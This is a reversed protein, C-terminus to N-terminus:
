RRGKRKRAPSKPRPPTGPPTFRGGGSRPAHGLLSQREVQSRANFQEVFAQVGQEDDPSVGAAKAQLWFRKGWSYRALDALNARLRPELRADLNAGRRDGRLSRRASPDEDFVM